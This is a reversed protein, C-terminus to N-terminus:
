RVEARPARPIDVVLMGRRRPLEALIRGGATVYSMLEAVKRVSYRVAESGTTARLGSRILEADQESQPDLMYTKRRTTRPKAKPM